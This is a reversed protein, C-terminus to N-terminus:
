QRFWLPQLWVFNVPLCDGKFTYMVLLCRCEHQHQIHHKKIDSETPCRSSPEDGVIIFRSLQAVRLTLVKIPNKADSWKNHQRTPSFPCMQRNTLVQPFVQSYSKNSGQFVWPPIHLRDRGLFAWLCTALVSVCAKTSPPQANRNFFFHLDWWIRAEESEWVLDRERVFGSGVGKLTPSFDSCSYAKKHQAREGESGGKGGDDGWREWGAGTKAKQREPKEGGGAGSDVGGGWGETAGRQGGTVGCIGGRM